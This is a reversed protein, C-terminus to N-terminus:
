LNPRSRLRYNKRRDKAINLEYEGKCLEIVRGALAEDFEILDDVTWESSIITIKGESNYRSNILEIAINLDGKSPTEGTSMKLFDDIYLVEVSKLREMRSAYEPDNIVQKLEKSEDMWLMYKVEKGERMFGSCMATCIHTKGAGSQGGIFFFRDKNRLFMLAREKILKRWETDTTYKGFTYKGIVDGLGSRKLRRIGERATMCKCRRFAEYYNMGASTPTEGVVMIGGKNKCIPCDYGDQADLDGKSDNYFDCKKQMIGRDDLDSITPELGRKRLIDQM